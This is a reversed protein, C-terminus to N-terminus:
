QFSLHTQWGTKFDEKEGRAEGNVVGYPCKCTRAMSLIISNTINEMQVSGEVGKGFSSLTIICIRAPMQAKSTRQRWSSPLPIFGFRQTAHM